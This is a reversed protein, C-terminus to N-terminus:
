KRDFYPSKSNASIPIGFAIKIDRSFINRKLAAKGVSFMIRNDVRHDAAISVASGIAINLDATNFVCPTNPFKEKETCNDFGCLQCIENLGLTTIETGIILIADSNSLNNADRHYFDTNSADGMKHLENALKDIEAGTLLIIELTDKGKGKPATRAAIMMKRGIDELQLSKNEKELILAM